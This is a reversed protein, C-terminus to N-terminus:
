RASRVPISSTLTRLAGKPILPCHGRPLCGSSVVGTSSSGRRDDEELLHYLPGMLLVADFSADAFRSLDVANGQEVGALKVGAELAKEEALALCAKSLDFLTV